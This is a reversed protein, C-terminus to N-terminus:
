VDWKPYIDFFTKTYIIILTSNMVKCCTNSQYKPIKPPPNDFRINAKNTM